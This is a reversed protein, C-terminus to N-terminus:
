IVRYQRQANDNLSFGNERKGYITGKADEKPGGCPELLDLGLCLFNNTKEILFVVAVFDPVPIPSFQHQPHPPPVPQLLSLIM